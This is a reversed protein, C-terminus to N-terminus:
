EESDTGNWCASVNKSAIMECMSEALTLTPLANRFHSIAARGFNLQKDFQMEKPPTLSSNSDAQGSSEDYTHSRKERSM